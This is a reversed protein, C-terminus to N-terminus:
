RAFARWERGVCPGWFGWCVQKYKQPSEFVFTSGGHGANAMLRPPTAEDRPTHNILDIFPLLMPGLHQGGPVRPPTPVRAGGEKPLWNCTSDVGTSHCVHTFFGVGVYVFRWVLSVHLRRVRLTGPGPSPRRGRGAFTKKGLRASPLPTTASCSPTRRSSTCSGRWSNPDTSRCVSALASPNPAIILVCLLAVVVVVLFRVSWLAQCAVGM